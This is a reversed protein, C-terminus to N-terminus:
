LSAKIKKYEHDKQILATLKKRCKFVRQRIVTENKYPLIKLMDRYSIKQYLLTLVLRCNDSLENFKNRYLNWKKEHIDEIRQLDDGLTENIYTNSKLNTVAKNRKIQQRWLNKCTVYVYAQISIDLDVDEKKFRNIFQILAEQFVDKADDSNGNNQLVFRLVKPFTSTYIKQIGVSDGLILSKFLENKM